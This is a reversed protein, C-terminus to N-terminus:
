IAAAPAGKAKVSKWQMGVAGLLTLCSLILALQFTQVLADNYLAKAAGLYEAPVTNRLETAGGAAVAAADVGPLGAGAINKTLRNLFVNQAASVFLSGGLLQVFMIVTTGTAVDALGLVTQAAITPMQFGFGAGIGYIITYGAWRHTPTGVTFTTLLGAGVSMFVTSAFIFPMYHGIKTVLGGSVILCAVQAILFPLTDVGSKVPSDDKIAQFWLPIYYILVYFGGGLFFAVVSGFAMNRKAIIRPPVTADEKKWIQIAVFVILLVGFLVFLAIIRGSGWGYKTGGWSLALLVCVMSPAFIATGLLDLKRALEPVDGLRFRKIQNPAPPLHLAFLIVAASVGGIPLNIYFCWRWTVKDTFAGGILPGAVSALGYMSGIMGVYAPRTEVPTSFAITILAGSFLGASGLGAVVRGVILAVSNPAVACVLSGVEFILLAIMFVWKIPFVNYLKGFLLQVACTAILYASGYWGVDELSHFDSTIKPIATAIITNDLAVCFVALCLAAM